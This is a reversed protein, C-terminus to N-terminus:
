PILHTYILQLLFIQFLPGFFSLLEQSTRYYWIFHLVFRSSYSSNFLLHWQCFKVFSTSPTYATFSLSSSESLHLATFGWFVICARLQLPCTSPFSQLKSLFVSSLHPPLSHILDSLFVRNSLIEHWNQSLWYDTVYIKILSTVLLQKLLIRINNLIITKMKTSCKM